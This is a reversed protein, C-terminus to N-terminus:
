RSIKCNPLTQKLKKIGADTVQTGDLILERLSGVGMLHELGADTITRGVVNITDLLTM